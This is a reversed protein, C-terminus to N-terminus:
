SFERVRTGTNPFTVCPVVCCATCLCLIKIIGTRLHAIPLRQSLHLCFGVYRSNQKNIITVFDSSYTKFSNYLM